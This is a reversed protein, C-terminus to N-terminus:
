KSIYCLLDSKCDRKLTKKPCVAFNKLSKEPKQKSKREHASINLATRLGTTYRYCLHNQNMKNHNSDKRSQWKKTRVASFRPRRGCVRLRREAANPSRM